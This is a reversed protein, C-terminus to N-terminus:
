ADHRTQQHAAVRWRQDRRIYVTLCDVREAISQDNWRAAAHYTLLCTDSAISVATEDSFDVEAWHRGAANEGRIAEVAIDLSIRGVDPFILVAEPLCTDAYFSADNRWLQREITLLEDLLKEAADRPAGQM